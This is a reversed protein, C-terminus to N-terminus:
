DPPRQVAPNGGPERLCPASAVSGEPRLRAGIDAIGGAAVLNQLGAFQRM